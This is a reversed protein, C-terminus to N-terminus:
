GTLFHNNAARQLLLVTLEPKARAAMETLEETRELEAEAEEEAMETKLGEIMGRFETVHESDIREKM